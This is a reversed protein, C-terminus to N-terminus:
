RNANSQNEDTFREGTRPDVIPSVGDNVGKIIVDALKATFRLKGLHVVAVEFIFPGRRFTDGKRPLFATKEVLPLGMLEKIREKATSPVEKKEENQIDLSRGL